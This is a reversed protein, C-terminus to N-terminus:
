QQTKAMRAVWRVMADDHPAGRLNLANPRSHPACEASTPESHRQSKTHRAPCVPPELTMYLTPANRPDSSSFAPQPPLGAPHDDPLQLRRIPRHQRRDARWCPEHQQVGRRNQSVWATTLRLTLSPLTCHCRRGRRHAGYISYVNLSDGRLELSLRYTTYGAPGGGGDVGYVDIRGVADYLNEVYEIGGNVSGQNRRRGTGQRDHGIWPVCTGGNQCQKLCEDVHVEHCCNHQVTASCPATQFNTPGCPKAGAEAACKALLRLLPEAPLSETCTAYLRDYSSM